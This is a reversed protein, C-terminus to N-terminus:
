APPYPPPPRRLDRLILSKRLGGPLQCPEQEGALHMGLAIESAIPVFSTEQFFQVSTTSTERFGAIMYGHVIVIHCHTQVVDAHAVDDGATGETHTEIIYRHGLDTRILVMQVHHPDHNDARLTPADVAAGKTTAVDGHNSVSFM